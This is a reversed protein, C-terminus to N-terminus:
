ATSSAGGFFSIRPLLYRAIASGVPGGVAGSAAGALTAAAFGSLSFNGSTSSSGLYGAAAVVAGFGAGAPGIGGHVQNLQTSDLERM